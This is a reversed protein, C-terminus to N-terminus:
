ASVGEALNWRRISNLQNLTVVGIPKNNGDVIILHHLEPNKAFLQETALCTADSSVTVAPSSMHNTVQYFKTQNASRLGFEDFEFVEDLVSEDHDILRQNLQLYRQIDTETLIGISNGLSDVVPAATARAITLAKIADLMLDYDHIPVVHSMAATVFPSKEFRNRLGNSSANEAQHWADTASECPSESDLEAAMLKVSLVPCNSHRIVYESVSGLIWRVMSARGNTAMIILDCNQGVALKVIEPGPNGRLFEHHYELTLDTPVVQRFEVQEQVIMEDIESRVYYATPPLPPIAVYCFIIKAGDKKAWYCALDVTDQCNRFDDIPVLIKRISNM